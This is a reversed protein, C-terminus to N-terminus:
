LSLRSNKFIKASGASLLADTVATPTRPVLLTVTRPFLLRFHHLVCFQWTSKIFCIWLCFCLYLNGNGGFGSLCGVIGNHYLTGIGWGRCRSYSRNRSGRCGNRRSRCRRFNRLYKTRPCGYRSCRYKGGFCLFAGAVLSSRFGASYSTFKGWGDFYIGGTYLQLYFLRGCLHLHATKCISIGYFGPCGAVFLNYCHCALTSYFSQFSSFCFDGDCKCRCFFLHDVNRYLLLRHLCGLDCANSRLCGQFPCSVSRLGTM